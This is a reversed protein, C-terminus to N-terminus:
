DKRGIIKNFATRRTLFLALSVIVCLFSFVDGYATYFSFDASAPAFDAIIVDETFVRTKRMIRGYPDIVGSIGTNAARLVCRRNEVARFVNFAFHQAPASTDLYWADNTLNVIFGAGNKTLERTLEPFIAEFCITSGFRAGRLVFVTHGRGPSIEGLENLTRVFRGLFAKLPIIEGFPVLHVKDYRGSITGAPDFLFASNYFRGGSYDVAGIFHYTHTRKCLQAVRSNIQRNGSLVAPLASEPWVILDPASAAARIALGEYSRLIEGAYASDWKKYQDINGQLLAARFGGAGYKIKKEALFGYSYCAFFVLLAFALPAMAGSRGKGGEKFILGRTAAALSANVAILAFSVGYVGTVDSIQIIRTFEWQSYGLLCWPFGSLLHGRLFELAVWLSPLFILSLWGGGSKRFYRNSMLCFLGTYLSIYLSLTLLSLMALFVPEGAASFTPILWYLIVAFSVGGSIIGYFFSSLAPARPIFILLPVFAFWALFSLNFDPFSFAALLGSLASAAIGAAAPSKIDQRLM